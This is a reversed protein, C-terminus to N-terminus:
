AKKMSKKSFDDFMKECTKIKEIAIKKLTAKIFDRKKVKKLWHRLKELEEENEEMEPFIFNKREVEFKIEKFFIRM